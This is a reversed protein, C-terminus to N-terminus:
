GGIRRSLPEVILEIDEIKATKDSAGVSNDLELKFRWYRGQAGMGLKSRRTRIQTSAPLNYTHSGTKEDTVTIKMGGGDVAAYVYTVRKKRPDGFDLKGTEVFSNIPHGDDTDGELTYIGTSDAGLNGSLSNFGFGAGEYKSVANNALNIAWGYYKTAADLIWQANGQFRQQEYANLRHLSSGSFQSAAYITLAHQSTGKFSSAQYFLIAHQSTGKFASTEFVELANQYNGKFSYAIWGALSHQSTGKFQSSVYRSLAHQSTGKFQSTRYANLAHQSTAQFESIKRVSFTPAYGTLTLTGQPISSDSYDTVDFTPAYGTLTLAGQPINATKENGDQFTPAYGTLSLTGQPINVATYGDLASPANGTLTLTGQPIDAYNDDPGGLYRKHLVEVTQRTVRANPVATSTHLVEVSQHTVKAATM